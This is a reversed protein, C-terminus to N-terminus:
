AAPALRKPNVTVASSFGVENPGHRTKLRNPAPDQSRKPFIKNGTDNRTYHPLLNIQVGETAEDLALLADDRWLGITGDTFEGSSNGHGRYDFRVFGQGHAAAWADLATGKAGAMDSRFGGCFLVWPSKGERRRCAIRAGNKAELISIDTHM